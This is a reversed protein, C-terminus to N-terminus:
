TSARTGKQFLTEGVRCMRSASFGTAHYGHRRICGDVDVNTTQINQHQSLIPDHVRLHDISVSDALEYGGVRTYGCPREYDRPKSAGRTM